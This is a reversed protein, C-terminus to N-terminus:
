QYCLNHTIKRATMVNEKNGIGIENLRNLLLNLFLANIHNYYAKKITNNGFTSTSNILMEETHHFGDKIIDEVINHAMDYHFKNLSM